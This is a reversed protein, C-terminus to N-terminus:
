VLERGNLDSIKQIVNRDKRVFLTGQLELYPVSFDFHKEREPVRGYYPLIISEGALFSTRFGESSDRKLKFDMVRAVANLLEVSFGTYQGSPGIFSIPYSNTIPQVCVPQSFRTSDPAPSPQARLNVWWGSTLGLCILM